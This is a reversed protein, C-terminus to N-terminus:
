IDCEHDKNATLPQTMTNHWRTTDYTQMHWQTTQTSKKKFKDPPHKTEHTEKHRTYTNCRKHPHTTSRRHRTYPPRMHIQHTTHISTGYPHSTYHTHMHRISTEYPIFWHWTPRERATHISADHPHAIDHTHIHWTSTCLFTYHHARDHTNIHRHIHQTTHISTDHPHASYHILIHWAMHISTDTSTSHQTCPHAMNYDNMNMDVLQWPCTVIDNLNIYNHKTSPHGQTFTGDFGSHQQLCWQRIIRGTDTETERKRDTDTEKQREAQRQRETDTDRETARERNRDREGGSKGRKAYQRHTANQILTPIITQLMHVTQTTILAPRHTKTNSDWM